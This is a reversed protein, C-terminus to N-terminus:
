ELELYWDNFAMWKLFHFSLAGFAFHITSFALLSVMCWDGIQM